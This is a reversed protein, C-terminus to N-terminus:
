ECLPFSLLPMLFVRVEMSRLRAGKAPKVALESQMVMSVGWSSDFVSVFCGESM